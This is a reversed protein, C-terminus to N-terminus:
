QQILPHITFASLLYPLTLSDVRDCLVFCSHLTCPFSEKKLLAVQM